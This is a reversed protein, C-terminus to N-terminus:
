VWKKRAQIVVASSKISDGLLQEAYESLIDDKQQSTFSQSMGEISESSIGVPLNMIDYFKAVFLKVCAPLAELQAIDKKDFELTTHNLIWEFASEVVITGRRSLNEIPIGIEYVEDITM